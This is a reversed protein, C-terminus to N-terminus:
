GTQEMIKDVCTSFINIFIFESVCSVSTDWKFKLLLVNYQGCVSSEDSIQSRDNMVLVKNCGYIIQLQQITVEMLVYYFVCILLKRQYKETEISKSQKQKRKRLYWTVNINIMMANSTKLYLIGDWISWNFPILIVMEGFYISTVDAGLYASYLICHQQPQKHPAEQRM